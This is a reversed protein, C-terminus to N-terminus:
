DREEGLFMGLLYRRGNTVSGDYRQLVEFLENQLAKAQQGTLDLEVWGNLVAPRSSELASVARGTEDFPRLFVQGQHTRDLAFSWGADELQREAQVRNFVRQMRSWYHAHRAELLLELPLRRTAVSFREATARYFKLSKGARKQERTRRVLGLRELQRVLKYAANPALRLHAAVESVTVEADLFPSLQQLRSPDTVFRIAEESELQLTRELDLNVDFRNGTYASNAASAKM